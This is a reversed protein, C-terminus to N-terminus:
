RNSSPMEVRLVDFYLHGWFEFVSICFSLYRVPEPAWVTDAKQGSVVVFFTPNRKIQVVCAHPLSRRDLEDSFSVLHHLAFRTRSKLVCTEDMETFMMHM